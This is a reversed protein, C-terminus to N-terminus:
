RTKNTDSHSSEKQDEMNPSEDNKDLDEDHEDGIQWQEVSLEIIKGTVADIEVKYQHDGYQYDGRGPQDLDIEYSPSGDFEIEYELEAPTGGFRDQAIRIAEKASIKAHKAFAPDDAHEVETEVEYIDGTRANCMAEWSRGSEDQIEIEYSPVGKPTVSLYEVKVFDGDRVAQSAQLCHELPVRHGHDGAVAPGTFVIGIPALAFALYPLVRM